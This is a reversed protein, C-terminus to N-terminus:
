SLCSNEELIIKAANFAKKICKTDTQMAGSHSAVEFLLYFGKM